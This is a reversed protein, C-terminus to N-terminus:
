PMRDTGTCGDCSVELKTGVPVLLTAPRRIGPGSITLVREILPQGYEFRAGIGAATGVNSVVVQVDIPLKGSPVERDLVAKILMKEAGQPYKTELPIIECPLDAPIRDNLSRIADYKNTEVGLYTKESGLIRMIVRIGMFIDAAYELMIRHDTTLYPECESGNIMLWRVRKGEPVVFKVHTPFAAGGLGVFGGRQIETNLEAPDLHEWPIRREDYLTQPSNPDCEIVISEVM